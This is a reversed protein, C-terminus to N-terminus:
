GEGCQTEIELTDGSVNWCVKIPRSAAWAPEDPQLVIQNPAPSAVTGGLVGVSDIHISFRDAQTFRLSASGGRHRPSNLTIESIMWGDATAVGRLTERSRDGPVVTVTGAEVTEITFVSVEDREEYIWQEGVAFSRPQRAIRLERRGSRIAAMHFRQTFYGRLALFHPGARLLEPIAYAKGDIVVASSPAAMASAGRYMLPLSSTIAHTGPDTLGGKASDPASACDIRFVVQEGAYSDFSVTASPRHDKQGLAVEITRRVTTRSLTAARRFLSDDNVHDIQAQDHRTLIARVTFTGEGSSSFMAEVCEYVPHGTFFAIAHFDDAVYSLDFPNLLPAPLARSHM